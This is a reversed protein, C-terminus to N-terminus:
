VTLPDASLPPALALAPTAPTSELRSSLIYPASGPADAASARSSPAGDFTATATDSGRWSSQSNTLRHPDLFGRKRWLAYRNFPITGELEWGRRNRMAREFAKDWAPKFCSMVHEFGLPKAPVLATLKEKNIENSAKFKQIRWKAKLEKFNITDEGQSIYSLNPVRVVIEMGLAIAKDLVGECLRTGVGDCVIVGQQGPHTDRPKPYGLAPHLVTEIYNQCLKENVSGKVNSTYRWAIPEGNKDVINHARCPESIEPAWM